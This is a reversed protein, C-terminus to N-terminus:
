GVQTMQKQFKWVVFQMSTDNVPHANTSPIASGQYCAAPELPATKTWPPDIDIAIYFITSITSSFV